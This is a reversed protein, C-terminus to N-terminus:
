GHKVKAFIHMDGGNPAYAKLPRGETECQLGVLEAWRRGAEFDALVEAEIRRHPLADIMRKAVRTFRMMHPGSKSSLASWLQARGPHYELWGFCALPEDGYLMTFSSPLSEVMALYEPETVLSGRQTAQVDLRQMHEVKFPVVEMDAGM